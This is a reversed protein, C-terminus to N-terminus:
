PLRRFDFDHLSGLSPVILLRSPQRTKEGDNDFVIAIRRDSEDSGWATIGEAKQATAFEQTVAIQARKHVDFTYVRNGHFSNDEAESAALVLLETDTLAMLGALHYAIGASSDEPIFSLICLPELVLELNRLSFPVIVFQGARDGRIGIFISPADAKGAVAIGEISTTKSLLPLVDGSISLEEARDPKWTEGERQIKFRFLKQYAPAGTYHAGVVYFYGSAAHFAIDEFKAREKPFGPVEVKTTPSGPAQPNVVYLYNDKDNVIFLHDDFEAVGSAEVPGPTASESIKHNPKQKDIQESQRDEMSELSLFYGFVRKNFQEEEYEYVKMAGVLFLTVLVFLVIARGISRRREKIVEVAKSNKRPPM